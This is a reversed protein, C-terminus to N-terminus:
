FKKPKLIVFSVLSLDILKPNIRLCCCITLRTAPQGVSPSSPTSSSVEAIGKITNNVSHVGHAGMSSIIAGSSGVCKGISWFWHCFLAQQLKLCTERSPPVTECLLSSWFPSDTDLGAGHGLYLNRLDSFELAHDHPIRDVSPAM